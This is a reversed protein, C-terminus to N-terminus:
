YHLVRIKVWVYTKKLYAAQDAFNTYLNLAQCQADCYYTSECQNSCNDPKPSQVLGMTKYSGMLTNIPSVQVRTPVISAGTTWCSEMNEFGMGSNVFDYAWCVTGQYNYGHYNYAPVFADPLGDPTGFYMQLIKDLTIFKTDLSSPPGLETYDNRIETVSNTIVTDCNGAAICSFNDGKGDSGYEITISSTAGNQVMAQRIASKSTTGTSAGAGGVSVALGASIATSTDEAQTTSISEYSTTVTTSVGVSYIYELPMIFGGAAVTSFYENNVLEQITTASRIATWREVWYPQVLDGIRAQSFIAQNDFCLNTLVGVEASYKSQGYATATSGESGESNANAQKFGAKIAIGVYSASASVDLGTNTSFQKSYSQETTYQTQKYSTSTQESNWQFCKRHIMTAFANEVFLSSVMSADIINMDAALKVLNANTKFTGLVIPVNNISNNNFIQCALIEATYSSDDTNKKTKKLHDNCRDNMGLLEEANMNEDYVGPPFQLTYTAPQDSLETTTSTEKTVQKLNTQTQTVSKILSVTPFVNSGNGYDKNNASKLLSQNVIASSASSLLSSYAKLGICVLLFSVVV